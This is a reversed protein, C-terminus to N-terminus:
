RQREVGLFSFFGFIKGEREQFFECRQRNFCILTKGFGCINASTLMTESEILAEIGETGFSKPL